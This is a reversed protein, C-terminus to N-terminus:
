GEDILVVEQETVICGCRVDHPEAPVRELLRAQACLAMRCAPTQPLFRDYFGGGYGLRAGTRDCALAPVLCLDIEEPAVAACHAGPEPIGFREETLDRESTIACPQMAHGPLCKPLCVRKGRRLADAIIAHTDIEEPTSCYVFVTRSRRYAESQLVRQTIARDSAAKQEPAIQRRRHLLERRLSAKDMIASAM